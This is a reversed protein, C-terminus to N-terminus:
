ESVGVISLIECVTEDLQALNFDLVSCDGPVRPFVERRGDQRREAVGHTKNYRDLKEGFENVPRKYYM